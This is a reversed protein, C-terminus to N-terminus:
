TFPIARSRLLRFMKDPVMPIQYLSGEEVNQKRLLVHCENVFVTYPFMKYNTCFHFPIFNIVGTYKSVGM